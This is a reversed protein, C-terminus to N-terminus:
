WEDLLTECGGPPRDVLNHHIIKLKIKYEIKLQKKLNILVLLFYNSNIIIFYNKKRIELLSSM